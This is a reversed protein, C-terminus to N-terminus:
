VNVHLLREVLEHGEPWLGYGSKENIHGAAGLDIFESGWSEALFRARNFSVTPDNRSAVVITPFPLLQLPMPAFGQPGRPYSRAETDSPAVLLAGGISRKHRVWWHGVLACATSHAVLVPAEKGVATVAEDLVRIWDECRPRAWDKQVVRTYEPHATLWLSQWHSPGSNHLGPLILVKAM